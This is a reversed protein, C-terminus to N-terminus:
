EELPSRGIRDGLLRESRGIFAIFPYSVIVASRNVGEDSIGRTAYYRSCHSRYQQNGGRECEECECAAVHPACSPLWSLSRVSSAMFRHISIIPCSPSTILSSPIIPSGLEPSPVLTPSEILPGEVPSRSSRDPDVSGSATLDAGSGVAKIKREFSSGAEVRRDRPALLSM